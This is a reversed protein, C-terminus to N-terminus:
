RETLLRQRGVRRALAIAAFAVLAAVLWRPVGPGAALPDPPAEYAAGAAATAPAASLARVTGDYTLAFLRDGAPVLGGVIPAGLDTQWRPAGTGADYARLVGDVGGAWVVRGTVVPSALLGRARVQYAVAHARGRGTKHEWRVEGTAADVAVLGRHPTPV